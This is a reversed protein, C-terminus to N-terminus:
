NVAQGSEELCCVAAPATNRGTTLWIGRGGACGADDPAFGNGVQEVGSLGGGRLDVATEGAAVRADVRGALEGDM